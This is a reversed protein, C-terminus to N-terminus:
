KYTRLKVLFFFSWANLTNTFLCADYARSSLMFADTFLISNTFGQSCLFKQISHGLHLIFNRHSNRIEITLRSHKSSVYIIKLQTKFTVQPFKITRLCHLVSDWFRSNKKSSISEMVSDRSRHKLKNKGFIRFEFWQCIRYYLWYCLLLNNIQIKTILNLKYCINLKHSLLWHHQKRQLKLSM